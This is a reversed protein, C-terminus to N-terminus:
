RAAGRGVIRSGTHGEITRGMSPGPSSTTTTPEDTATARNATGPRSTNDMGTGLTTNMTPATPDTAAALAAAAQDADLVTATIGAAALARTTQEARRRARVAAGHTDRGAARLGGATTTPERIVILVRRALLDRTTALESLFRAHDLAADELAPHPLAAAQDRLGTITPSLDIPAAQVLIQVPGTLSNLWGGFAGVLAAQEAPTRLTFSVTTAAVIVAVGNNDGLNITGGPDIAHAPLRLPAPPPDSQQATAFTPLAPLGDPAPVLRRPQTTYAVAHATLRDLAIGDRQGLALAAAAGLVPIAFILFVAPPLLGRTAAYLAWLAAAVPALIALQRATLPGLIRDPREIDGPIVAGRAPSWVPGRGEDPRAPARGHSDHRYDDKLVANEMVINGM